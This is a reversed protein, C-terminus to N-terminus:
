NKLFKNNLQFLIKVKNKKSFKFMMNKNYITKKKNIMM